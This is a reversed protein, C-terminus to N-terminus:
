YSYGRNTADQKIYEMIIPFDVVPDIRGQRGLVKFIKGSEWVKPDLEYRMSFGYKSLINTNPVPYSVPNADWCESVGPVLTPTIYGDGLGIDFNRKKMEVFFLLSGSYWDGRIKQSAEKAVSAEQIGLIELERDLALKMAKDFSHETDQIAKIAVHTGLLNSFSDEWSFASPFEPLPGMCHFDFWTLIEHWTSATYSFYQGLHLSIEFAIQKKEQESFGEWNEPYSFEIFYKTPEVNTRFSFETKNEM